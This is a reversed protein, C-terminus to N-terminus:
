QLGLSFESALAASPTAGRMFLRLLRRKWGINDAQVSHNDGNNMMYIAGRFPLRKLRRSDAAAVAEWFVHNSFRSFYCPRQDDAAIPLDEVEFKVIASSGCLRNFRPAARILGRACDFEYGDKLIYGNPDADTRVFSVLRNSVLDDADVAMLYGGGLGRLTAGILRRKLGKDVMQEPFSRPPPFPAEVAIVRPDDIAAIEPLQHCAVIIRFDSDTQGLVSRLTAEFLRSVNHWSKASQQSRLPIGFFFDTM